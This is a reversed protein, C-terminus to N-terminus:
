RLKPLIAQFPSKYLVDHIEHVVDRPKLIKPTFFFTNLSPQIGLGYFGNGKPMVDNHQMIYLSKQNWWVKEFGDTWTDQGQSLPVIIELLEILLVIAWIEEM